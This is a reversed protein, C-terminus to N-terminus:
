NGLTLVSNGFTGTTRLNSADTVWENGNIVFKYEYVGRTLTQKVTYFGDKDPGEMALAKVNWNNFTGALTVSDVKKGPKFRFLVEFQDKGLDRVGPGAFDKLAEAPIKLEVTKGERLVTLQTDRDLRLKGFLVAADIINDFKQGNISTIEDGAKFGQKATVSNPLVFRILPYRGAQANQEPVLGLRLALRIIGQVNFEPSPRRFRLRQPNDMMERLLRYALWSIRAGGDNDVKSVEDTVQHYDAHLGSTFHVAPIAQDLFSASDARGSGGLRTEVGLGCQAALATIRETFYASSESDLAMVKGRFLRGV